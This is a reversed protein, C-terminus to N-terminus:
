YFYTLYSLVRIWFAGIADTIGVDAAYLVVTTQSGYRLNRPLQESDLVLQVPFRFTNSSNASQASPLGTAPDTAIVGGVGWGISEVTASFVRGPLADFMVEAKTGPKVYELSNERLHATIWIARTDIFTLVGQGAAIYRGPTLQLNTVVGAGPAIVQTRLLDLQADRLTAAAERIQPNDQGDSGLTQRARELEALAANLQAESNKLEANAQDARAVPLVKRRVAELVRGAQERMHDRNALASAVQAEATEVAATNAGVSQGAAALRAEARSVAIEYPSPDIRFLLDRSNVVQNDAIPVEVIRGSVEPAIQAIFANVYAQSSLPTLRDAIITYLFVVIALGILWLTLRRVPDQQKM